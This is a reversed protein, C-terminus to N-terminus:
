KTQESLTQRCWVLSTAISWTFCCDCSGPATRPSSTYSMLTKDALLWHPQCSLFRQRDTRLSRSALFSDMHPDNWVIKKFSLKSNQEFRLSVVHAHNLEDSLLLSKSNFYLSWLFSSLVPNFLREKWGEKRIIFLPLNHRIRIQFVTFDWLKKNSRKMFSPEM